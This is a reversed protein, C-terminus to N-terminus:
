GPGLRRTVRLGIDDLGPNQEGALQAHSLHVWSLEAAWREGFRWGLGIEPAFVVRSGFDLEERGRRFRAQREADTLGPEFPSPLDTEGDHVAAGVAPQFYFRGRGFDFRYSLGAVAYNTEGATNVAGFAYASPRGIVRLGELPETRYGLAVQAGDEYNGIAVQIDADHDYVGLFVEGAAAPAAVALALAALVATRM